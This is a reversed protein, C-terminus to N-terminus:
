LYRATAMALVAIMMFLTGVLSFAIMRARTAGLQAGLAARAEPAALAMEGGLALLRRATPRIGILAVLFGIITAAMGTSIGIGFSSHFWSASFGTSDRRM